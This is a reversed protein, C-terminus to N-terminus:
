DISFHGKLNSSFFTFSDNCIDTKPTFEAEISIKSLDSMDGASESDTFTLLEPNEAARLFATEGALLRGQESKLLLINDKTTKIYDVIGRAM